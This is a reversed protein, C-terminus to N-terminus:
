QPSVEATEVTPILEAAYPYTDPLIWVPTSLRLAVPAGIDFTLEVTAAKWGEVPTELKIEFVGEEIPELELPEYTQGITDIRFDRATPNVATWLVVKAPVTQCVVRLVSSEKDFSWDFKPRPIDKVISYFFAGLTEPGPTGRLSHDGNPAYYLSKEGPLQDFYYQSSDPCFFQDGTGNIICMPMTFRDRYAFPDVLKLLDMYRPHYRRQMIEHQVYNGVAPAWFGYAAFHARMSVDVNLVDIVIPAIAVVRKDVAATMWTTWGRKSGGSVVFGEISLKGFDDSAALAQITDMARVAGKTMAMRAPWRSDGTKLFQDWTYGILDDEVREVGDNHFILPQNPIQKLEAVVAQSAVATMVLHGELNDPAPSGNRGGGIFLMAKDSKVVPPKYVVLWHRWETRNVEDLTLWNQSVMDIVFLTGGALPKQSVIEWRYAEDPEAVYRDLDTPETNLPTPRAPNAFGANLDPEIGASATTPAPPPPAATGVQGWSVAPVALVGGLALGLGLLKASRCRHHLLTVISVGQFINKSFSQSLFLEGLLAQASLGGYM